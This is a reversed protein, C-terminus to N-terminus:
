SQRLPERLAGRTQVAGLCASQKSEELMSVMSAKYVDSVEDSSSPAGRGRSRQLDQRTRALARRLEMVERVQEEREQGGRPPPLRSRERMAGRGGRSM